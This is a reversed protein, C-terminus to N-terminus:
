YLIFGPVAGAFIRVMEPDKRLHDEIRRRVKAWDIPAVPIVIDYSEGASLNPLGDDFQGEGFTYEHEDEFSSTHYGEIRLFNVPPLEALQREVPVADSSFDPENNAAYQAYIESKLEVVGGGELTASVRVMHTRGGACGSFSEEFPTMKLVEDKTKKSTVITM